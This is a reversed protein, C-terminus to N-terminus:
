LLFAPDNVILSGKLRQAARLTRNVYKRETGCNEHAEKGKERMSKQAKVTEASSQEIQEQPTKEHEM